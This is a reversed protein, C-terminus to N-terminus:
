QNGEARRIQEEYYSNLANYQEDTLGTVQRNPIIPFGDAVNKRFDMEGKISHPAGLVSGLMGGALGSLALQPVANQIKDQMSTNMDYVPQNDPGYVVEGNEDLLENNFGGRAINALTDSLMEQGGEEAGEKAIGGTMRAASWAPSTRKLAKAEKKADTFASGLKRTVHAGGVGFLYDLLSEATAAAINAGYEGESMIGPDAYSATKWDYTQPDVGMTAASYIDSIPKILGLSGPLMYPASQLAMNALFNSTFIPDTFASFDIKGDDSFLRKNLDEETWGIVPIPGANNYHEADNYLIDVFDNYPIVVDNGNKDQIVLPEYSEWAIADNDGTARETWMSSILPFFTGDEGPMGPVESGNSLTYTYPWLGDPTLMDKLGFREVIFEPIEIDKRDVTGSPMLTGDERVDEVAIDGIEQGYVDYYKGGSFAISNEADDPRVTSTKVNGKKNDEIYKDAYEAFAQNNDILDAKYRSGDTTVYDYDAVTDALMNRLDGFFNTGYQVAENAMGIAEPLVNDSYPAGENGVLQSFIAPDGAETFATGNQVRGNNLDIVRGKEVPVNETIAQKSALLNYDYDPLYKDGKSVFSGSDPDWEYINTLKVDESIHNSGDYEQTNSQPEEQKDDEDFQYGSMASGVTKIYGTLADKASDINSQEESTRERKSPRYEDVVIPPIVPKTEINIQPIENRNDDADDIKNTNEQIQSSLPHTATNSESANVKSFARSLAQSMADKISMIAGKNLFRNYWQDGILIM